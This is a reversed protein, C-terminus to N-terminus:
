RRKMGQNLKLGTISNELNTLRSLVEDNLPVPQVPANIKLLTDQIYKEKELDLTYKKSLITCAAYATIV